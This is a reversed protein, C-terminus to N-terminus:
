SPDLYFLCGYVKLLCCKRLVEGDQKRVNVTMAQGYELALQLNIEETTVDSPLDGLLPDQLIDQLSTRVVDMVQKHTLDAEEIDKDDEDTKKLDESQVKDEDKIINEPSVVQAGENEAQEELNPSTEAQALTQIDM